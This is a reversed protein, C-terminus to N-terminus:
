PLAELVPRWGIDEHRHSQTNLYFFGAAHFGRCCRATARHRFPEQTWSV